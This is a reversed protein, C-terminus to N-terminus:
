RRLRGVVYFVAFVVALCLRSLKGAKVEFYDFPESM